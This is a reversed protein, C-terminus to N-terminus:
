RYRLLPRSRQVVPPDVIKKEAIEKKLVTVDKIRITDGEKELRNVIYRWHVRYGFLDSLYFALASVKIFSISGAYYVTM